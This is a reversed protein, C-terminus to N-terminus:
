RSINSALPRPLTQLLPPVEGGVRDGLDDDIGAQHHGPRQRTAPIEPGGPDEGCPTGAQDQVGPLREQVSGDAVRVDVGLDATM